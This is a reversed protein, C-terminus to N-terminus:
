KCMTINITEHVGELYYNRKSKKRVRCSCCLINFTIFVVTEVQESYVNVTSRCMKIGFGHPATKTLKTEKHLLLHISNIRTPLTVKAKSLLRREYESDTSEINRQTM